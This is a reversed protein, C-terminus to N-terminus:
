VHARGIQIEPSPVGVVNKWNLYVQRGFRDRGFSLHRPGSVMYCFVEFMEAHKSLIVEGSDFDLLKGDHGWGRLGSVNLIEEREHGATFEAVNSLQNIKPAYHEKIIELLAPSGGRKRELVHCSFKGAVKGVSGIWVPEVTIYLGNNHDQDFWASVAYTQIGANSCLVVYLNNENEVAVLRGSVVGTPRVKFQQRFVHFKKGESVEEVWDKQEFEGGTRRLDDKVVPDGQYHKNNYFTKKLVVVDLGVQALDEELFWLELYYIGAGQVGLYSSDGEDALFPLYSPQLFNGEKAVRVTALGLFDIGNQSKKEESGATLNETNKMSLVIECTQRPVQKTNKNTQNILM